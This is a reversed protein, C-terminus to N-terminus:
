ASPTPWVSEIPNLFPKNRESAQSLELREQHSLMGGMRSNGTPQVTEAESRSDDLDLASASPASSKPRPQKVVSRVNDDYHNHKM